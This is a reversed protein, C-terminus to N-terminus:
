WKLLEENRFWLKLPWGVHGVPGELEFGEQSVACSSELCDGLTKLPIILSPVAPCILSPEQFPLFHQISFLSEKGRSANLMDQGLVKPSFLHRKIMKM